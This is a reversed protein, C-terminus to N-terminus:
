AGESSTKTGAFQGFYSYGFGHQRIISMVRDADARSKDTYMFPKLQKFIRQMAQKRHYDLQKLQAPDYYTECLLKYGDAWCMPKIDKGCNPLPQGPKRRGVSMAALKM